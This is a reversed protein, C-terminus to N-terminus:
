SNLVGFDFASAQNVFAFSVLVHPGVFWPDDASGRCCVLQPAMKTADGSDGEGAGSVRVTDGLLELLVGVASQKSMCPIALTLPRNCLNLQDEIQGVMDRQM